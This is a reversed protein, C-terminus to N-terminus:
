SHPFTYLQYLKKAYQKRKVQNSLGDVLAVPQQKAEEKAHGRFKIELLLFSKKWNLM